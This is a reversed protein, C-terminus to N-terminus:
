TLSSFYLTITFQNNLRASLQEISDQWLTYRCSVICNLKEDILAYLMQLIGSRSQTVKRPM